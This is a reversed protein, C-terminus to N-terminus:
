NKNSLSFHLLFRKDRGRKQRCVEKIESGLNVHYVAALGVPKVQIHHISHEYWVNRKTKRHELGHVFHALLGEIHMQHNDMGLM